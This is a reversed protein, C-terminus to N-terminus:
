DEPTLRASDDKWRPTSLVRTTGDGQKRSNWKIAGVHTMFGHADGIAEAFRARQRDKEREARKVALTAERLDSAMQNVVEDAELLRPREIRPYQTVLYDRASKTHDVPPMEDNVLFRKWWRRGLKMLGDAFQPDYELEWVYPGTGGILAGIAGYRLGTAHLQMQVQAWLYEPYGTSSYVDWHHAVRFSVNKIELVVQAQRSSDRAEFDPTAIGWDDVLTSSEVKALNKLGLKDAALRAIPEELAHGLETREDGEFPERGSLRLWEQFPTQWPSLGLVAAISSSGIRGQRERLQGDTLSM